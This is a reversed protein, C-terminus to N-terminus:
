RLTIQVERSYATGHAWPGVHGEAPPYSWSLQVWGSSPFAVRVDFYCSSGPRSLTITQLTRYAGGGRPWFNIAVTQPGPSDLSAFYAPRACGWVELRRGRRSSTVPLYLPLRWADYTPKPTGSYNILGSAFGGWDNSRQAPLPDHLLYQFYSVIRPNRWSIYEAWNLYYAATTQNPWPQYHPKAPEYQNDHKPPTTIYGFETDWVPLRRGSGYVRQLRDLTRTLNGIQGLSAYGPDPQAERGPQYWRMYPHDSVGSAAFLGPNMARFRRSGGATTPCGRIAAASGRLPRYSSNVCYLARLFTVPKMGSFVGWFPYGRPALEGFIFTDQGHGTEHLASWAADVLNRYMRPSNEVTLAGPVGQPALSPGYDPENWASWFSVRPLDNSDAVTRKLIPDYRGSYRVGLAHVFDHYMRPSPKWNANTAGAPAGPGRAWRPAGGMVDFDLGVGEMAAARVIQDWAQWNQAPYSAPDSPNFRSPARTSNAAPAIYNWHVSLRVRQVGLAHLHIMTGVPDALLRVDDELMAQQRVSARARSAPLTLVLALALLAGAAIATPAGLRRM